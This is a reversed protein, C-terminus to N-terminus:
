KPRPPLETPMRDAAEPKGRQGKKRLVYVAAAIAVVSAALAIGGVVMISSIGTSKEGELDFFLPNASWFNDVSRGPHASWNGWGTFTDTRWAYGQRAYSLIIYASDNYFIRQAEDVWFKRQVPDTSNATQMYASDYAASSYECDSWGGNATSSLMFLQYNPDIDGSWEWIFADGTYSRAVGALTIDEVVLIRAEVGIDAWQGKVYTAIDKEEPHEKRVLLEYSLNEGELVYGLQVAPSTNTCERTGDSDIDIYGNAELLNAADVLNYAFNAKETSSPEYHWMTNITPILTTGVEGFGAYYNDIIHQKDTAMHLAQRVIPDLRSPNPGADKMNFGIYTWSQTVKPGDFVDVAELEGSRVDNKISEYEAPPFAAVDIEGNELALAMSESDQFFRMTLKEFMVAKGDTALQHYDPNRVLTIHDGGLWDDYLSETAMFPGTGVIPMGPSMTNNFIGAWEMNIYSYTFNEMLHKPLMPMSLFYAYACPTPEGTERAWFSIRVTYNDVKWATHRFYSHPQIAWGGYTTQPETNLWVTFVVDDATFPMGDCWFADTTLNYQWISGYPMGAMEPDDTPVPCWSRALNPTVELDEDVSQLCDYVLRSFVRSVENYSVFPNLSDINQLYGIRLHGNPEQQSIDASRDINLVGYGSPATMLVALCVAALPVVGLSFVTRFKGGCL